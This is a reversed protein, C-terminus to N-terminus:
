HHSQSRPQTSSCSSRSYQTSELNLVSLPGQMSQLDGYGTIQIRQGSLDGPDTNTYNTQHFGPYSGDGLRQPGYFDRFSTSETADPSMVAQWAFPSEAENILMDETDSLAGNELEVLNGM